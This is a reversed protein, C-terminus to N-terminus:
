KKKELAQWAEEEEPTAKDYQSSVLRENNYATIVSEDVVHKKQLSWTGNQNDIWQLTDGEKWGQEKLLDEPLSLILDGTSADEEVTVTWTKNKM